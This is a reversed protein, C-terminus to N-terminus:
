LRATSENVKLSCKMENFRYSYEEEELLEFIRKTICEAIQLIPQDIITLKPHFIKTFMMDDFGVFSLETPISLKLDNIAFMSGVTNPFNAAFLATCDRRSLRDKITKYAVNMNEPIRIILEESVVIGREKYADIYGKIREDATYLGSEAAAVAINRHGIDLLYGTCKRCIERNNVVCFDVNMDPIYQDVFIVPISINKLYDYDSANRGCPVIVLADMRRSNLWLVSQREKNIDYFSECAAIAYGSRNLEHELESAIQAYFLNSFEPILLGVTKTRNTILGRAYEDVSYGLEKVAADIRERNSNKVAGGNMYKSITGLSLGTRKAVDKITAKRTM